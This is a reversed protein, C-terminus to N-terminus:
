GASTDGTGEAVGEQMAVLLGPKKGGQLIYEAVADTVRQAARSLLREQASMVPAPERVVLAEEEALREAHEARAARSRQSQAARDADTWV